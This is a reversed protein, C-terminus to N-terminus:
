DQAGNFTKFGSRLVVDAVAISEDAIKGVSFGVDLAWPGFPTGM